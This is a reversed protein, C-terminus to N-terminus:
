GRGEHGVGAYAADYLVCGREVIERTFCDNMALRDAIFAPTRVLLDMPFRHELRLDIEYAKHAPSGEFPMVVLLDVDSDPGPNGTAYSGFLIVREPRFERVIRDCVVQIDERNVM